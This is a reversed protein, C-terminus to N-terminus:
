AVCTDGDDEDEDDVDDDVDGLGRNRLCKIPCTRRRKMRKTMM